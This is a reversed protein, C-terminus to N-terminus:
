VQLIEGFWCVVPQIGLCLHAGGMVTLLPPSPSFKDTKLFMILLVALLVLKKLNISMSQRQNGALVCPSQNLWINAKWRSLGGGLIIGSFMNRKTGAFLPKHPLQLEFQEFIGKINCLAGNPPCVALVAQKSVWIMFTSGSLRWGSIFNKGVTLLLVNHWVRELCPTSLLSTIPEERPTRIWLEFGPKRPVAFQAWSKSSWVAM